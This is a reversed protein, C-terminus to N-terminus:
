QGGGQAAQGAPRASARRNGGAHTDVGASRHAHGRRVARATTPRSRQRAPPQRGVGGVTYVKTMRLNLAGYAVCGGFLILAILVGITTSCTRKM